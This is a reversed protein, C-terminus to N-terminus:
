GGHKLTKLDARDWVKGEAIAKQLKVVVAEAEELTMKVLVTSREPAGVKMVVDHSAMTWEVRAKAGWAEKGHEGTQIRM